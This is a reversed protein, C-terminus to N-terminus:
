QLAGIPPNNAAHSRAHRAGGRAPQLDITVSTSQYAVRLRHTAPDYTWGPGHVPLRKARPIVGHDDRVAVPANRTSFDAVGPSWTAMEVRTPAYSITRVYSSNALWRDQDQPATEPIDRMINLFQGTFILGSTATGQSHWWLGIRMKGDSMALWTVTNAVEKALDKYHPDGLAAWMEAYVEALRNTHMSLIVPYSTQELLAPVGPYFGDKVVLKEEVWKVIAQAKAAYSSDQDRHDLLYMATDLATWQDYSPTGTAIDGYFGQWDNTRVPNDMLWRFARDRVAQYQPNGTFRALDEFFRVYWLVSATYKALVKGSKPEVRFPFGGDERQLHQLTEAMHTAANLYKKNSTVGYLLLYALGQYASKDPEFGSAAIRDLSNLDKHYDFHSLTLYPLAWTKPTSHEIDWAALGEAAQIYQSDGTFLYQKVYGEIIPPHNHGPYQIDTGLADATFVFSSFIEPPWNQVATPVDRYDVVGGSHLYWNTWDTFTNWYSQRPLVKGTTDTRPHSATEIPASSRESVRFAEFEASTGRTLLGVRGSDLDKTWLPPHAYWKPPQGLFSFSAVEQDDLYGAINAGEVEVRLKHWQDPSIQVPKQDGVLENGLYTIKKDRVTRLAIFMGSRRRELLLADYDHADIALFILGAAAGEQKGPFRLSVQTSFKEKIGDALALAEGESNQQTFQGGAHSWQGSFTEWGGTLQAVSPRAAILCFVSLFVVPVARPFLKDKSGTYL